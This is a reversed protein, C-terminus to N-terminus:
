NEVEEEELCDRVYIEDLLDFFGDEISDQIQEIIQDRVKEMDVTIIYEKEVDVTRTVKIQNAKLRPRPAM